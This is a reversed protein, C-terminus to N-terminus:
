NGGLVSGRSPKFDGYLEQQRMIDAQLIDRFIYNSTRYTSNCFTAMNYSKEAVYDTIYVKYITNNELKDIDLGERCVIINSDGYNHAFTKLYSGSVETYMIANDFPMVAYLDKVTFNDGKSKYESAAVARIGGENTIAVDADCIKQIAECCWNYYQYKDMLNEGVKALVTNALEETQGIYRDVINKVKSDEELSQEVELYNSVGLTIRYNEDIQLQVNGIYNSNCGAQISYLKGGSKQQYTESSKQHTHGNIVVDVRSEADFKAIAANINHADDRYNSNSGGDHANVIVINCNEESRLKKALEKIIPVPDLFTYDAIVSGKISTEIGYGITPIVGYKIFGRTFTYYENLNEVKENTYKYRLNACGIPYNAEGNDENGDFYNLIKDIGWDFEHNGITTGDFGMENMADIMVRGETVNSIFQGQFTDGACLLVVNDEGYQKRIKNIKTTMKALGANSSTAEAAGHIDNVTLINVLAGNFKEPEKPTCSIIFLFTFIFIIFKSLKKM